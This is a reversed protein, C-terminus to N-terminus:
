VLEPNPYRGGRDAVQERGRSEAGGRPPGSRGRGLEKPSLRLPDDRAVEEGDLGGPEPREVDQQEDFEPAPPDVNAGRGDMGVRGPDSLLGPVERQVKMIAGGSDPKEDVVAVGLEDSGEILDKARLPGLHDQSRYPGRVGVGVGFPDDLDDPRLAGVPRQDQTPPM